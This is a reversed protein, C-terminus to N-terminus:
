TRREKGSNELKTREWRMQGRLYGAGTAAICTFLTGLQLFSRGQYLRTLRQPIATFLLYRLYSSEASLSKNASTSYLRKIASKLCGEEYSRQLFYRFKTRQFTVKHHVIARPEYIILAEPIQHKIRMCIETDERMGTKGVKGGPNLFLGVRKLTDARCAMNCSIVNRVQRGRQPLGPYTCGVIWDLEEPFWAPRGSDDLWRPSIKGGTAAVARTEFPQVLKELWDNEAVADDDMFALIDGTAVRVGINRTEPTGRDGDNFVLLVSPPIQGKLKEMLERNHDISVIVQHPSLTQTLASDIAELVDAFREMSYACIIVSVKPTEVM